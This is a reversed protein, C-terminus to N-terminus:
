PADTGDPSLARGGRVGRQPHGEGTVRAADPAVILEAIMRRLFENEVHAILLERELEDREYLASDREDELIELETVERGV